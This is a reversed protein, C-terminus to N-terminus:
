NRRHNTRPDAFRRGKAPHGRVDLFGPPAATVGPLEVHPPATAVLPLGVTYDNGVSDYTARMVLPPVYSGLGSAAAVIGAVSGLSVTPPSVPLAPVVTHGRSRLAGTRVARRARRIGAAAYNDTSVRPRLHSPGTRCIDHGLTANPTQVRRDRGPGFSILCRPIQRDPLVALKAYSTDIVVIVLGCIALKALLAPIALLGVAITTANGLGWPRVFVNMFISSLLLLKMWSVWKVLAYSRGSYELVRGEKIMSIEISGTPSDIPIRGNEVLVLLFFAVMGLLHTPMVLVYPSNALVHSMLYAKDSASVAGVTFFVLILAPEALSGIWSARSAGLGGLPSATDLGSLSIVFSALTLVFAGGIVDALFALPLPENTIIPVIASVSVYCAFAVFPAGRFVWSAQDSIASSKRLWKALDRYPQLVSPGRKSAVIADARALMGSSLPAVAIVVPSQLFRLFVASGM